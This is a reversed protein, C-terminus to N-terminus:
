GSARTTGTMEDPCGEGVAECSRGDVSYYQTVGNDVAGHVADCDFCDWRECTRVATRVQSHPEGPKNRFLFYAWGDLYRKKDEIAVEL